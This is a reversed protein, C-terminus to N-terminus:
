EAGDLIKCAEILRWLSPDSEDGEIFLGVIARVEALKAQLEAIEAHCLAVEGAGKALQLALGLRVIEKAQEAITAAQADEIPRQNWRDPPIPSACCNICGVEGRNTQIVKSGGCHPCRKLQERM